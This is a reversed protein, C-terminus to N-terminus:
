KAFTTGTHLFGELSDMLFFFMKTVLAYTKTLKSEILYM